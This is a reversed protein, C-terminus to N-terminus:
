TGRFEERTLGLAEILLSMFGIGNSGLGWYIQNNIEVQQCGTARVKAPIIQEEADKFALKYEVGNDMPCHVYGEPFLPLATILKFLGEVQNNATITKAFESTKFQKLPDLRIVEVQIPKFGDPMTTLTTGKTVKDQNSCSVLVIGVLLFIIMRKM